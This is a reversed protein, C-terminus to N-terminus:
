KEQQEVSMSNIDLREVKIGWDSVARQVEKEVENQVSEQNQRIGEAKSETILNGIESQVISWVSEEYDDVSSLFVVPDGVKTYVTANLTVRKNDGSIETVTPVEIRKVQTEVEKTNSLPPVFNVGTDMQGKCEGLVFLLRSEDEDVIRISSVLLVLGVISVIAIIITEQMFVSLIGLLNFRETNKDFLQCM